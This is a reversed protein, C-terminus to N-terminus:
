QESAITLVILSSNPNPYGSETILNADPNGMPMPFAPQQQPATVPPTIASPM